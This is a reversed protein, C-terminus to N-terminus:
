NMKTLTGFCEWFRRSKRLVKSLVSKSFSEDEEQVCEKSNTAFDGSFASDQKLSQLLSTSNSSWKRKNFGGSRLCIKIQSRCLLPM